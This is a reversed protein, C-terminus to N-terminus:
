AIARREVKDNPTVLVTKAHKVGFLKLDVFSPDCETEVVRRDPGLTIPIEVADRQHVRRAAENKARLENRCSSCFWSSGLEAAQQLIRFTM